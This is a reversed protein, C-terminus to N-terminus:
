PKGDRVTRSLIPFDARLAAEDLPLSGDSTTTM